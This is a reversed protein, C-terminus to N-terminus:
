PFYVRNDVQLGQFTAYGGPVELVMNYDQNPILLTESYPVANNIVDVIRGDRVFLIDLSIPTDKMWFPIRTTGQFLFLMGEGFPLYQRFMLGQARQAETEAIEVKVQIKEGSSKELTVYNHNTGSCSLFLGMLLYFVIRM